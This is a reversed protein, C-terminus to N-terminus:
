PHGKVAKSKFLGWGALWWRRRRKRGSYVVVGGKGGWITPRPYRASYILLALLRSLSL